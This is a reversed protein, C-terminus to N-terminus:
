IKRMDYKSSKIIQAYSLQTFSPVMGTYPAVQFYSLLLVKITAVM